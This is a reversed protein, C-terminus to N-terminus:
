GDRDRVVRGERPHVGYKCEPKAEDCKKKRKRCTHCGTKVRLNRKIPEGPTATGLKRPRGPGKRKPHLQDARVTPAGMTVRDAPHGAEIPESSSAAQGEGTAEPSVDDVDSESLDSESRSPPSAAITSSRPSESDQSSPTRTTLTPLPRGPDSRTHSM